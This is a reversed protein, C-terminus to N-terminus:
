LLRPTRPPIAAKTSVRNSKLTEGGVWIRKGRGHVGCGIRRAMVHLHLLADMGHPCSTMWQGQERLWAYNAAKGGPIFMRQGPMQQVYKAGTGAWLGREIESVDTGPEGLRWREVDSLRQLYDMPEGLSSRVVKIGRADSGTAGFGDWARWADGNLIGIDEMKQRYRCQLRVPSLGERKSSGAKSADGYGLIFDEMVIITRPGCAMTLDVMVQAVGAEIRHILEYEKEVGYGADFSEGEEKMKRKERERRPSQVKNPWVHTRVKRGRGSDIQDVFLQESFADWIAVGTTGGPDFAILSLGPKDVFPM